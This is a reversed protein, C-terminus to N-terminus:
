YRYYLDRCNIVRVHPFAVPVFRYWPFCTCIVLISDRRQEACRDGIRARDLFSLLQAGFLLLTLTPAQRSVSAILKNSLYIACAEEFGRILRSAICFLFLVPGLSYIDSFLRVLHQDRIAKRWKSLDEGWSAVLKAPHREYIVRWMGVDFSELPPPLHIDHNSKHNHEMARTSSIFPRPTSCFRRRTRGDIYLRPLDPATLM